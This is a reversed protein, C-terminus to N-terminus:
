FEPAQAIILEQWFGIGDGSEEMQIKIGTIRAHVNIRTISEGFYGIGVPTYEHNGEWMVYVTYTLNGVGKLFIHDIVTADNLDVYVALEGNGRGCFTTGTTETMDGNFLCDTNEKGYVDGEIIVSDVTDNMNRYDVTQIEGCEICKRSQKMLEYTWSEDYTHGTADEIYRLEQIQCDMCYRECYVDETCSARDANYSWITYRHEKNENVTCETKYQYKATLTLSDLVVSSKSYRVGDEDYWGIFSANVPAWPEPLAGLRAGKEKNFLCYDSHLSGEGANLEIVVVDENEDWRSVLVTDETFVTEETVREYHGKGLNIYWGKFYAGEKYLRPLKAISTNPIIEMETDDLKIKILKIWNATLTIDESVDNLKFDWKEDNYYWGEIYYGNASVTPMTAYRGKGVYQAEPAKGIKSEFTVKFLPVWNAYLTMNETVVNEMFDWKDGDETYWGELFYGDRTPNHPRKTIYGDYAETPLVESGGNSEYEVTFIDPESEFMSTDIMDCSVIFLCALALFLIFLKKM